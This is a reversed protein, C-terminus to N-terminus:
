YPKKSSAPLSRREPRAPHSNPSATSLYLVEVLAPLDSSTYGLARLGNPLKLREIFWIIRDLLM